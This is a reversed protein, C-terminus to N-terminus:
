KQKNYNTQNENLSTETLTPRKKKELVGGSSNDDDNGDVCGGWGSIHTIHTLSIGGEAALKRVKPKKDDNCEFGGFQELVVSWLLVIVAAGPCKKVGFM